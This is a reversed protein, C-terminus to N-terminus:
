VFVLCFLILCLTFSECPFSFYIRLKSFYIKLNEFSEAQNFRPWGERSFFHTVLLQCICCCCSHFSLFDRRYLLFFILNFVSVRLPHCFDFYHQWVSHFLPVKPTERESAKWFMLMLVSIIFIWFYSFLSTGKKRIIISECRAGVWLIPLSM